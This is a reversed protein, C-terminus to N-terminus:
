LKACVDSAGYVLYVGAITLMAIALLILDNEGDLVVDAKRFDFDGSIDGGLRFDQQFLQM